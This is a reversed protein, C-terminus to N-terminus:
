MKKSIDTTVRPTAQVKKIHNVMEPESSSDMGEEREWVWAQFRNTLSVEPALLLRIRKGEGQVHKGKTLHSAEKDEESTQAGVCPQRGAQAVACYWANTM